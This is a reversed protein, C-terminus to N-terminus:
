KVTSCLAIMKLKGVHLNDPLSACIFYTSIAPFLPSPNSNGYYGEYCVDRCDIINQEVFSDLLRQEAVKMGEPFVEYSEDVIM